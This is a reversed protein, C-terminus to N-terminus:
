GLCFNVFSDQDVGCFYHFGIQLACIRMLNKSYLFVFLITCCSVNKINIIAHTVHVVLEEMKQNQKLGGFYKNISLVILQMNM